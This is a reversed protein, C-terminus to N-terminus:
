LTTNSKKQPLRCFCREKVFHCVERCHWLEGEGLLHLFGTQVPLDGTMSLHSVWGKQHCLRDHVFSMRFSSKPLYNKPIGLGELVWHHLTKPFLFYPMTLSDLLNGPDTYDFSCACSSILEQSLSPSTRFLCM